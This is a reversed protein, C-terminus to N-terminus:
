SLINCKSKLHSHGLDPPGGGPTRKGKNSTARKVALAKGSFSHTLLHQLAKVKNWRNQQTAKVIRTQLRKVNRNLELWNISDWDTGSSPACTATAANM